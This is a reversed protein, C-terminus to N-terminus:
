TYSTYKKMYVVETFDQFLVNTWSPKMIRYELSYSNSFHPICSYKLNNLNVSSCKMKSLPCKCDIEVYFLCKTETTNPTVFVWHGHTSSGLSLRLIHSIVQLLSDLIMSMM